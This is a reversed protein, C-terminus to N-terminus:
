RKRNWGATHCLHRSFGLSGRHTARFIRIRRSTIREFTKVIGNCGGGKAAKDAMQTVAMVGLVDIQHAEGPKAAVAQGVPNDFGTRRAVLSVRALQDM